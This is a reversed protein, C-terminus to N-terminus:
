ERVKFRGFPGNKQPRFDGIGMRRGADNAIDILIEPKPLLLEDYEVTFAACWEEFRPRCRVVGNKGQLLVRRKDITYNKIPTGDRLTLAALEEIVEIHAIASKMTSRARAGKWAGAAGLLAARFGAGPLACTGDSLRYTGAEAEDDPDPIQNGKGGKTAQMATPNHTLLPKIGEIEIRFTAM